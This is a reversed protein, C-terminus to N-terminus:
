RVTVPQQNAPQQYRQIVFTIGNRQHYLGGQKEALDLIADLETKDSGLLEAKYLQKCLECEFIVSMVGLLAKETVEPTSSQFGLLDKRPPATARIKEVWVHKCDSEDWPIGPIAVARVPSDNYVQPADVTTPEKLKFLDKLSM